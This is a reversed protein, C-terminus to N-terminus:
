GIDHAILLSEYHGKHASFPLARVEKSTLSDPQIGLVHMQNELSKRQLNTQQGLSLVKGHANSQGITIQADSQKGCYGSCIVECKCLERHYDQLARGLAVKDSPSAFTGHEAIRTELDQLAYKKQLVREFAKDVEKLDGRKSGSNSIAKWLDLEPVKSNKSCAMPPGYMFDTWSSRFRTADRGPIHFAANDWAMTLQERLSGLKKPNLSLDKLDQPSLGLDARNLDIVHDKGKFHFGFKQSGQLVEKEVLARLQDKHNNYTVQDLGLRPQELQLTQIRAGDNFTIPRGSPILRVQFDHNAYDIRGNQDATSTLTGLAVNLFDNLVQKRKNPFAGSTPDNGTGVTYGLARFNRSTELTSNEALSYACIENVLTTVRRIDLDDRLDFKAKMQNEGWVVEKKPPLAPPETRFQFQNALAAMNKLRDGSNAAYFDIELSIQGQPHEETPKTCHARIKIGHDLVPMNYTYTVGQSNIDRGVLVGPVKLASQMGLKPIATLLNQMQPSMDINYDSGGVMLGSRVEELSQHITTFFEEVNSPKEKHGSSYLCVNVNFKAACRSQEDLVTPDTENELTTKLKEFDSRLGQIFSDKKNINQGPQDIKTFLSEYLSLFSDLMRLETQVLQDPPMDSGKLTKISSDFVEILRGLTQTMVAKKLPSDNLDDPWDNDIFPAAINKLNAFAKEFKSPTAFDAMGREVDVLQKQLDQQTRLSEATDNYDKVLAKLLEKAKPALPTNVKIDRPPLLEAYKQDFVTSMWNATVGMKDLNEMMGKFDSIEKQSLGSQEALTLFRKWRMTLPGTLGEKVNRIQDGFVPSDVPSGKLAQLYRSASREAEILKPFAEVGHLSSELFKVLLLRAHTGEDFTYKPNGTIIENFANKVAEFNDKTTQLQCKLGESNHITDANQTLLTELKQIEQDYSEFIGELEGKLTAMDRSATTKLKSVLEAVGTKSVGTELGIHHSIRGDLIAEGPKFSKDTWVYAKQTQGDIVLPSDPALANKKLALLESYNPVVLCPIPNPEKGNLGDKKYSGFNVAPHSNSGDPQRVIVLKQTGGKWDFLAEAEKMTEAFCVQSWDTIVLADGSKPVVTTYSFSQSHTESKATNVYTPKVESRTDPIARHQVFNIQGSGSVVAEVETTKGGNLTKIKDSSGVLSLVDERSLSPSYAQQTTNKQLQNTIKEGDKVARIRESKVSPQQYILLPTGDSSQMVFTEDVEVRGNGENVGPGVASSISVFHFDEGGTFEVKDTSMAIGIPPTTPPGGEGVKIPEAIMEMLLVPMKPLGALVKEMGDGVIRNRLSDAGFYSLVVEKMAKSVSETNPEVFLVSENGGANPTDASDEDGTSRAIIVKGAMTDNIWTKQQETFPFGEDMIEEIKDTIAKLNVDDVKGNSKMAEWSTKIVNDTDKAMIHDFIEKSSVPSREPVKVGLNEIEYLNATKSGFKQVYEKYNYDKPAKSLPQKSTSKGSKVPGKSPTVRGKSPTERMPSAKVNVSRDRTVVPTNKRSPPGKSKPIESSNKEFKGILESVKRGGDKGKVKPGTTPATNNSESSAGLTRPTINNISLKGSM